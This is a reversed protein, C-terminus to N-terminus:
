STAEVAFTIAEEMSMLRGATWEAALVAPDIANRLQELSRNYEVREPGLMAAGVRERLSEAAALLRAARQPDDRAIALFGFSELQNAIAGRSGLHQWARITERFSAEAEDLAGGRRLAHAHDSRAVLEFRRDGIERYLEEARAFLPRAEDLRGVWGAIRGRNLM